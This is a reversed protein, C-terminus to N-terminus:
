HVYNDNYAFIYGRLTMSKEVNINPVFKPFTHSVIFGCEKLKKELSQWGYHYEIQMSSFNKLAECSEELIADYECGECDMKLVPNKLNYLSIIKSLSMIEILKGSQDTKITNAGPNLEPSINIKAQKGIGANLVIVRNEDANNTALNKKILECNGPFPEIAIVRSANELIFFLVTDGINAGVDVVDKNNVKLFGYENNEFVEIQPGIPDICYLKVDNEKFKLSCPKEKLFLATKALAKVYFDRLNKVLISSGDVFQFTKERTPSIVSLSLFLIPRKYVSIIKLFKKIYFVFEFGFLFKLIPIIYNLKRIRPIM